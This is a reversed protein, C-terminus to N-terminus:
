THVLLWKKTRSRSLPHHLSTPFFFSGAAAQSPWLIESCAQTRICRVDGILAANVSLTPVKTEFKPWFVLQRSQNFSQSVYNTTGRVGELYIVACSVMCSILIRFRILICAILSRVKWCGKWNINRMFSLPMCLCVTTSVDGTLLVYIMCGVGVQIAYVSGLPLLPLRFAPKDSSVIIFICCVISFWRPLKTLM